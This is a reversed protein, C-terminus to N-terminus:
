DGDGDLPFADVLEARMTGICADLGDVAREHDVGFGSVIIGKLEVQVVEAILLVGDSVVHCQELSVDDGGGEELEEIGYGVLGVLGDDGDIIAVVLGHVELDLAVTGDDDERDVEPVAVVDNERLYKKLFEGVSSLGDGVCGRDGVGLLLRRSFQLSYGTYSFALVM